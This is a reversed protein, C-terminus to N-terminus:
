LSSLKQKVIESIKRSDARGSTKALVQKMVGGMDKMSTAKLEAIVEDIIKIISGDDMPEPLYKELLALESNVSDILETRTSSSISEKTEQLHKRQKNLVGIVEADDLKEKKLSIAKNKLEARIFSLFDVRPKDRSKLAEVYDKYIRDELLM